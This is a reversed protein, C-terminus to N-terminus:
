IFLTLRVTGYTGRIEDGERNTMLWDLSTGGTYEMGPRSSESFQKQKHGPPHRYGRRAVYVLVGLLVSIIITM